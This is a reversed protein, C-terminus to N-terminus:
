ERIGRQMLTLYSHNRYDPYQQHKTEVAIVFQEFEKRWNDGKKIWWLIVEEYIEKHTAEFRDTDTNLQTLHKKMCDKAWAINKIEEKKHQEREAEQRKDEKEQPREREAIEPPTLISLKIDDKWGRSRVTSDACDEVHPIFQETFMKSNPFLHAEVAGDFWAVVDEEDNLLEEFYEVYSRCVDEISGLRWRIRNPFNIGAYILNNCWAKHELLATLIKDKNPRAKPKWIPAAIWKDALTNYKEVWLGIHGNPDRIGNEDPNGSAEYDHLHLNEKTPNNMINQIKSYDDRNESKRKAFVLKAYKERFEQVSEAVPIFPKGRNQKYWVITQDVEDVSYGDNEVLKKFINAEKASTIIDNALHTGIVISFDNALKQYQENNSKIAM